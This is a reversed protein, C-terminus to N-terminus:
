KVARFVISNNGIIGKRANDIRLLQTQFGIKALKVLMEMSFITYVLVGDARIPDGHYIPERMYLTKGGTEKALQEDLYSQQHFPVTFIHCGGKKLVRYVEGHAKYPDSVHEFVDSSLIIDFSGNAFTLKMLDQNQVGDVSEGARIDNGFYESCTYSGYKRLQNHVPGSSETNYISLGLDDTIDALSRIAKGTRDSITSCLVFAIQRQRNTSKCNSCLCSERLNQVDVGTVRGFAGCVPCKIYFRNLALLTRLARSIQKSPLPYVQYTRSM